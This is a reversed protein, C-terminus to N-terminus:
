AAKANNIFENIDDLSYRNSGGFAIPEPFPNNKSKRWSFITRDSVQFMKCVQETTLLETM